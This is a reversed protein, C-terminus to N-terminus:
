LRKKITYAEGREDLLWCPNSDDLENPQTIIFRLKLLAQVNAMVAEDSPPPRCRDKVQLLLVDQPLPYGTADRLTRLIFKQINENIM